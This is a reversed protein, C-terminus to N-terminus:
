WCRGLDAGEVSVMREGRQNISLTGCQTEREAQVGQPVAQLTYSSATPIEAFSLAYFKSIGACPLPEPADHYGRKMVYYQEMVQAQEILCAAALVRRGTTLHQQWGPYALAALLAMIAAVTLLEPLSFGRTRVSM